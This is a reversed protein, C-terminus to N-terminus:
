SKKLLRAQDQKDSNFETEREKYEKTETAKSQEIMQLLEDLSKADEAASWGSTMAVTLTLAWIPFIKTKM